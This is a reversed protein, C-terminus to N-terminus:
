IERDDATVRLLEELSTIGQLVKEIGNQRLTVMGEERGKKEIEIEGAKSFLLEKIAPTVKLCEIIASRGRYGSNFCRQCGKPRYIVPINGDQDYLNYRKALESTPTYAEKCDPCLKRTLRQAIILVVSSAILFPEVGMNILRVICGSSTNTHITSFVLHGTLAAKIAIDVTEFDRIEGILIVDPDQRLISRLAGAFTLGIETLVNVQNIGALEYEVPEEVTVLNKGPSDVYSLLSYLTTTKGSGTPGCALIMGHPTEAAELMRALDREHYGLKNVDVMVQEKDLIRLCAKEGLISPLISVRFDVPRGEVKIRFRGDQPIRKEAIDLEAMIKMRSILPSFYKKPPTHYVHLIGDIRYRVRFNNEMPEILIDSAKEKVGQILITNTLKIVPTDEIVRFIDTDQDEEKKDEVMEMKEDSLNEVMENIAQDASQEYHKNIIQEMSEATSLVTVINMKTLAKIDDLTFINSPDVIALTLNKGIRSIPIVNYTKSIRKPIIKLVEPDIKLKSVDLPVIKYVESVASFYDEKLLYEMKQLIDILDGGKETVISQAELLQDKTLKHEQILYDIIKNAFSFM